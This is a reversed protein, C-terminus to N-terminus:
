DPLGEWRPDTEDEACTCTQRNLDAGCQSCYGRCTESCVRAQPMALIVTERLAPNLDVEGVRQQITLTDGEGEDTELDRLVVIEVPVEYSLDYNRLCRGCEAEGRAQLTGSLLFRSELNTVTLHGEVTVTGPGGGGFDISFQGAIELSSKGRATRELDLKM